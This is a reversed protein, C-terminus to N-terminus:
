RTNILWSYFALFALFSIINILLGSRMMKKDKASMFYVLLAMSLFGCLHALHSVNDKEGSLFGRIDAYLFIWGKVMLPLPLIIEYTVCFPDLLMAAAILGMVAGSAGIIAVSRELFFVYILTSFLMSLVLAGFYIFFTKGAGLYKETVRGFIFIGLMNLGLHMLDQHIFGSTILPLLKGEFLAGPYLIAPSLYERHNLFFIFAFINFFILSIAARSHTWVTETPITRM